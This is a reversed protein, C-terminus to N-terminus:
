DNPDSSQRRASTLCLGCGDGRSRRVRALNATADHVGGVLRRDISSGDVHHLRAAFHRKCAACNTQIAAKAHLSDARSSILQANARDAVRWALQLRNHHRRGSANVDARELQGCGRGLQLRHHHGRWLLLHKQRRVAVRVRHAVHCCRSAATREVHQAIHRRNVDIDVVVHTQTAVGADDNLDISTWTRQLRRLEAAEQRLQRRVRDLLDFHNRIRRRAVRRFTHRADDVNHELSIGIRSQGTTDRRRGAGGPASIDTSTQAILLAWHRQVAAVAPRTVVPRALVADEALVQILVREAIEILARPARLYRVRVREGATGLVLQRLVIRQRGFRHVAASAFGLRKSNQIPRQVRRLRKGSQTIAVRDAGIVFEVELRREAVLVGERVLRVPQACFDTHEPRPFATRGTNRGAAKREGAIWNASDRGLRLKARLM